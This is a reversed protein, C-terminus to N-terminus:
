TISTLALISKSWDIPGLLNGSFGSYFQVDGDFINEEIPRLAPPNYPLIYVFFM